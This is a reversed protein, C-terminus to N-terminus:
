SWVSGPSVWGHWCGEVRVGCGVPGCWAGQCWAFRGGPALPCDEFLGLELRDLMPACLQHLGGFALEMESQIGAVSAVRCGSARGALWELLATKGVGLEGHVVLVRSQGTRVADLLRDLGACRACTLGGDRTTDCRHEVNHV